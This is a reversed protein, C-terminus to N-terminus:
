PSKEKYYVIQKRHNRFRNKKVMFLIKLFKQISHCQVDCQRKELKKNYNEFMCFLQFCQTHFGLISMM